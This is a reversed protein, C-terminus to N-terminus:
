RAEIPVGARLETGRGPASVITLTGGVAALRDEMLRLGFSRECGECVQPDFGIGDDRISCHISAQEQKLSIVTKAANAHRAVNNLAEQVVRYLLTELPVPHRTRLSSDVDIAIGTRHSFTNALTAVADALGLDEVVRPHMEHAIHRLREEVQDLYRRVAALRERVAPEVDRSVDGLAIHAAALFQGAEDHLAGAIRAAEREFQVNLRRLADQTRNRQTVDRGTSVFHTITGSGARIPTIMQDEDYISGDRRRNKMTARFSRGSLITSWLSQYFQEDHVGSQLMSPRRGIVQDKTYGSMAEFAPNVYEITGNRDTIMVSDDTQEIALLLKDLDTRVPPPDDDGNRGAPTMAAISSRLLRLVAAAAATGGLARGVRALVPQQMLLERSRAAARREVSALM